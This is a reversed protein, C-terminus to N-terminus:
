RSVLGGNICGLLANLESASMDCLDRIIIKNAELRKVRYENLDGGGM